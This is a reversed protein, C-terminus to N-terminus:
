PAQSVPARQTSSKDNCGNALLVVGLMLMWLPLVVNNLTAVSAVLPTVNRLMAIWGLVSAAVGPSEVIGLIEAAISRIEELANMAAPQREIAAPLETGELGLAEGTCFVSPNGADVISVDICRGDSLTLRDLTRGTPLLRGTTTGGPDLWQLDIRAGTGPVGALIYDGETIVRGDRVPVHAHVLIGTNVSRIRVTTIPEVAAVLGSEIAFPGVASTMNGCNGGWDVTEVDVGVQAFTM